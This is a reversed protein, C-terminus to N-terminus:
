AYGLNIDTFDLIPRCIENYNLQFNPKSYFAKLVDSLFVRKELGRYVYTLIELLTLLLVQNRIKYKTKYMKNKVSRWYLVNLSKQHDHFSYIQGMQIYEVIKMCRNLLRLSGDYDMILLLIWLLFAPGFIYEIM